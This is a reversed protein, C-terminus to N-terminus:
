QNSAILAAAQELRKILQEAQANAIPVLVVLFLMLAPLRISLGQMRPKKACSSRFRRTCFRSRYRGATRVCFTFQRIAFTALRDSGSGTRYKDDCRRSKKYFTM